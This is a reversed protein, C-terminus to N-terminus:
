AVKGSAIESDLKFLELPNSEEFSRTLESMNKKMAEIAADDLIFTRLNEETFDEVDRVIRGIGNKEIYDANGLEQELTPAIIYLPTESKIAEFTTIGGPKTILLTADQLLEPINNAFGLVRINQYKAKAAQELEKNTGCVLTTEIGSAKDLIDLTKMGGPILGLGGGMVLVKKSLDSASASSPKIKRSVPIGAVHVIADDIGRRILSERTSEAGVFYRDVCPAIWENHFTVDTIYVYLPINVSTFEKYAGFYQACLPLNAIVLDPEYENIMRAIKTRCFGKFPTSDKKGALLNLSNYLGSFHAVLGEFGKYVVGSFHPYLYDMIDIVTVNASADKSEIQEKIASACKIHGMGFRGTLIIINM